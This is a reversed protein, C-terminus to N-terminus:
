SKCIYITSMWLLWGLSLLTHWMQICASRYVYFMSSKRCSDAICGQSEVAFIPWYKTSRINHTSTIQHWEREFKIHFVWIDHFRLYTFTAPKPSLILARFHLKSGADDPFHNRCPNQWGHDHVPLHSWANVWCATHPRLSNFQRLYKQYWAFRNCASKATDGKVSSQNHHDSNIIMITSAKSLQGHHNISQKSIMHHDYIIIILISQHSQM